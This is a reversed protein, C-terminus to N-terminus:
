FFSVINFGVSLENRDYIDVNSWTKRATINAQPVFGYFRVDPFTLDLGIGLTQDKRGDPTLSWKSYDRTEASISLRPAVPGYQRFSRVGTVGYAFGDISASESKYDRIWVGLSYSGTSGLGKLYEVSAGFIRTDSNATDLRKEVRAQLGFRLASTPGRKVTQSLSIRAWRSYEEGGYWNKGLLGTLSTPGVEPWILRQHRLGFAVSSFDYDSDQATPVLKRAQSNLRVKQVSLEGLLDTRATTSEALRYSFSVGATAIWGGLQQSTADLRFPLGGIDVTLTEAGNNVNNSPNLSFRLDVRLPNRKRAIGFARAVTERRADDASQDARRLWFQSRTYRKQSALIDATLMAADFRLARTRAYRWAATASKRADETRGARRLLVAEIVLAEANQPNRELLTRSIAGATEFQGEALSQRALLAAQSASIGATTRGEFIEAQSAQIAVFFMLMAAAFGAYPRRGPTKFKM